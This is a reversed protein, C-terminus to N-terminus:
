YNNRLFINIKVKRGKSTRIIFSESIPISCAYFCQWSNNRNHKHWMVNLGYEREEEEEEEEEEKEEGEEETVHM